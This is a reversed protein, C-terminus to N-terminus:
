SLFRGITRTIRTLVRDRGLIELMPFLEPGSPVGCLAIRLPAMVAGFGLGSTEIFEHLAQDTSVEDFPELGQFIEKM